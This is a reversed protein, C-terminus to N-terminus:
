AAEPPLASNRYRKQAADVDIVVFQADRLAPWDADIQRGYFDREYRMDVPRQGTRPGLRRYIGRNHWVWAGTVVPVVVTAAVFLWRLMRSDLAQQAVLHWFYAFLVWGAFLGAGHLAIRLPGRLRSRRLPSM